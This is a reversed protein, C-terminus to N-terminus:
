RSPLNPPIALSQGAHLESSPLANFEVISAITDRPDAAPALETAIGWLTEGPLVVHHAVVVQAARGDAADARRAMALAAGALLALMALVVLARLVARGRRTLRLAPAAALGGHTSSPRVPRPAPEGTPVLRLHTARGDPHVPSRPAKHTTAHGITTMTAELDFKQEIRVDSRHEVV